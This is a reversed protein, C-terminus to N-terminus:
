KLSKDLGCVIQLNTLCCLFLAIGNLHCKTWQFNEKKNSHSNCIFRECVTLNCWIVNYSSFYKEWRLFRWQFRCARTISHPALLLPPPQRARWATSCTLSCLHMSISSNSSNSSSSGSASSRKSSVTECWSFVCLYVCVCVCDALPFFFIPCWM